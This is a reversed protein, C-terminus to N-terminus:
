DFLVPDCRGFRRGIAGHEALEEAKARMRDFAVVRYGHDLLRLAIPWGMHGLGILGLTAAGPNLNRGITEVERSM